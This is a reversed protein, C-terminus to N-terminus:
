HSPSNFAKLICSPYCHLTGGSTTLYLAVEELGKDHGEWFKCLNTRKEGVVQFIKSKIYPNWLLFSM